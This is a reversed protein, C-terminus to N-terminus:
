SGSRPQLNRLLERGRDTLVSPAWYAPNDGFAAELYGGRRLEDVAADVQERSVGPVTPREFGAGAPHSALADLVFRAIEPSQFPSKM